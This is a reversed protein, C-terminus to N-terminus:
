ALSMQEVEKSLCLEPLLFQESEPNFPTVTDLKLLSLNRALCFVLRDKVDECDLGILHERCCCSLESFVRPCM